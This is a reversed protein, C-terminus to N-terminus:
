YCFWSSLEQSVRNRSKHQPKTKEGQFFNVKGFCTVAWETEHSQEWKVWAGWGWWFLVHLMLPVVSGAALASNQSLKKKKLSKLMKIIFSPTKLPSGSCGLEQSTGGSALGKGAQGAAGTCCCWVSVAGGQGHLRCHNLGDSSRWVPIHKFRM